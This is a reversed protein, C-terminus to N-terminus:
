LQWSNIDDETGAQRDPGWSSVDAADRAHKGPCDLVLRNGWPDVAAHRLDGQAELQPLTPCGDKTMVYQEVTRAVERVQIQAVKIRAEYWQKYVAVGIAAAILGIIALVVMIEILTFGAQRRRM